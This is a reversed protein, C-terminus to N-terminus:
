QRTRIKENLEGDETVLLYLVFLTGACFNAMIM